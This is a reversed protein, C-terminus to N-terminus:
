LEIELQWLLLYGKLWRADIEVVLFAIHHLLYIMAVFTPEHHNVALTLLNLHELFVLITVVCLLIHCEAIDHVIEVLSVHKHEVVGLNERCTKVAGLLLGVRLYLDEQQTLQVLVLAEPIHEDFRRSLYAYAVLQEELLIPRHHSLHYVVGRTAAACQAEEVVTRM